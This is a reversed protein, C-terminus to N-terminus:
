RRQTGAARLCSACARRARLSRGDEPDNILVPQGDIIQSFEIEAAGFFEWMILAMPLWGTRKPEYVFTTATPPRDDPFVAALENDIYLVFGDDSHVRLIVPNVTEFLLSGTARFIFNENNAPASPLFPFRPDPSDFFDGETGPLAWDVFNIVSSATAGNPPNIAIQTLVQPYPGAFFQAFPGYTEITFGDQTNATPGTFAAQFSLFDSLDVDGDNDFDGPLQALAWTGCMALLVAALAMWRM